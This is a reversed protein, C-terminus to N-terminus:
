FRVSIAPPLFEANYAHGEYTICEARLVVQDARWHELYGTVIVKKGEVTAKRIILAITGWVQHKYADSYCIIDAGNSKLHFHWYPFDPHGQGGGWAVTGAVELREYQYTAPHSLLQPISTHVPPPFACGSMGALAVWCFSLFIGRMTFYAYDM